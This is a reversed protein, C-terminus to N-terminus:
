VYTITISYQISYSVNTFHLSVRPYLVRLLLNGVVNVCVALYSLRILQAFLLGVSFAISATFGIYIYM